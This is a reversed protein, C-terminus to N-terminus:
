PLEQLGLISAERTDEVKGAHAAGSMMTVSVPLVSYTCLTGMVVTAADSHSKRRLPPQPSRAPTHAATGAAPSARTETLSAPGGAVGLLPPM